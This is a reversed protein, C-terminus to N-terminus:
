AKGKEVGASDDIEGKARQKRKEVVDWNYVRATAVELTTIQVRLFELDEECAQLSEGAKRLRETLLEDAETLPYAVMVNAGLWLYVEELTSTDVTAHAYLTDQLPFLTKLEGPASGGEDLDDDESREGAKRKARQLFRVTELTSKMEPLKEKLSTARTRVNNEMFQYKSILEHFRRLTPEVDDPTTIYSSISSM